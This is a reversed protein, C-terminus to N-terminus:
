PGTSSFTCGTITLRAGYSAGAPRAAGHSGQVGKIDFTIVFGITSTYGLWGTGSVSPWVAKNTPLYSAVTADFKGRVSADGTAHGDVVQAWVLNNVDATQEFHRYQEQDVELNLEWEELYLHAGGLIVIGSKGPPVSITPM